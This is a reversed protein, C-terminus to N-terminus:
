SCFDSSQFINLRAIEDELTKWAREASERDISFPDVIHGSNIPDMDRPRQSYATLDAQFRICFGTIAYCTESLERLTRRADSLTTVPFRGAPLGYDAPTRNKKPLQLKATELLGRLREFTQVCKRDFIETTQTNLEHADDLFSKGKPSSGSTVWKDFVKEMRQLQTICNKTLNRIELLLKESQIGNLIDRASALQKLISTLHTLAKEMGDVREGIGHGAGFKSDIDKYFADMEKACNEISEVLLELESDIDMKNQPTIGKESRLLDNIKEYHDDQIDKIFDKWKFECGNLNDRTEAAKESIEVAAKWESRVIDILEVPEASDGNNDKTAAVQFSVKIQIVTSAVKSTIRRIFNTHKQEESVLNKLLTELADAEPDVTDERFNVTKSVLSKLHGDGESKLTQLAEALSELIREVLRATDANGPPSIQLERAKCKIGRLDDLTSHTKERIGNYSRVFDILLLRGKGLLRKTCLSDTEEYEAIIFLKRYNEGLKALSQAAPDLM